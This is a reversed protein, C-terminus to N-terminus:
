SFVDAAGSGALERYITASPAYVSFMVMAALPGGLLYYILMTPTYFSALSSMDPQFIQQVGAFGGGTMFAVATLVTLMVLYLIAMLIFALVYAGLMPWFKGRTLAWSGFINIRGTAFSQSMALSFRIALFVLLAIGSLVGLTGIILGGMAGGTAVVGGVIAVVMVVAIYVAFLCIWQVVMVVALRLEDGGFRLYASRSDDPRLVMRNVGAAAVAYYAVGFVLAVLWLPALKGLAALSAESDGSASAAQMDMITQGMGIVTAAGTVISIGTMLLAWIALVRLNARALSFASFGAATASFNRM